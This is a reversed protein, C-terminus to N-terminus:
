IRLRREDVARLRNVLIRPGPLSRHKDLIGAPDKSRIAISCVQLCKCFGQDGFTVRTSFRIAGCTKPMGLSHTYDFFDLHFLEVGTLAPTGPPFRVWM